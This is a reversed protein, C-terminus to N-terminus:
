GENGVDKFHDDLFAALSTFNAFVYTEPDYMRGQDRTFASNSYDRRVIYGNAVKNVSLACNKELAM